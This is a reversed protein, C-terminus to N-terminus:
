GRRRRAAVLRGVDPTVRDLGRAVGVSRCARDPGGLLRGDRPYGDGVGLADDVLHAGVTPSNGVVGSHVSGVPEGRRARIKDLGSVMAMESFRELSARGSGFAIVSTSCRPSSRRRTSTQATAKM